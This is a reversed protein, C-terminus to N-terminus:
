PGKEELLIELQKRAVEDDPAIKRLVYELHEIAKNNENLTKYVFSAAMRANKYNPKLRIAEELYNSAVDLEGKNAYILGMQHYTSPDTPAKERLVELTQLANDYYSPEVQALDIFMNSRSKWFTVNAPSHAITRDSAGVAESALGSLAYQNALENLYVPEHPNLITAKHISELKKTTYLIDARWYLAVAYLSYTSTLLLIGLLIYEKMAISKYVIEKKKYGATLALAPFLYFLLSTTVVSFGFFNTIILTIFGAFIALKVKVVKLITVVLFLYAGLGFIGSNAGINLFENHAKNYIFDWESTQNHEVPRHKYYSYAFTEVGTGFIPNTKMIETAGTWVIQRIQGSETGGTDAISTGNSASNPENLSISNSFLIFSITFVINLVLFGKLNKRKVVLYLWFILIAVGFALLGSRSKTFLLALFLSTSIFTSYIRKKNESNILYSWSLPMLAVLWSALWNPQGLTAFVRNQMDQVFCDTTSRGSIALCSLSFDFHELVGYISVLFASLLLIHINKKNDEKDIFTVYAWYLLLYSITSLLGGNFRSYYGFLSTHIDISFITALVQSLLFVLLPIDLVTPRFLFKRSRIMLYIWVSVICIALVYVFVIKNFEFLESTFPLFIFPTVFFLIKFFFPIAKAM